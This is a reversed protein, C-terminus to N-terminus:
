PDCGAVSDFGLVATGICYTPSLVSASPQLGESALQDQQEKTIDPTKGQINKKQTPGKHEQTNHTLSWRACKTCWKWLWGDHLKEQQENAKPAIKKWSIMKNKKNDDQKKEPCNRAWHGEKNCNFCKAKERNLANALPDKCQVLCQLQDVKATLMMLATDDPPSSLWKDSDELTQYTTNAILILDHYNTALEPKQTLEHHKMMFLICFDEVSCASLIECITMGINSPLGSAMDLHSCKEFIETTCQKVNEGPYSKLTM